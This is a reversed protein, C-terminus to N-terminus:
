LHHNEIAIKVYGSPLRVNWRLLLAILLFPSLAPFDGQFMPKKHAIEIPFDNLLPSIDMAM